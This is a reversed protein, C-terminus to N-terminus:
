RSPEVPNGDPSFGVEKFPIVKFPTSQDATLPDICERSAAMALEAKGIETVWLVQEPFWPM